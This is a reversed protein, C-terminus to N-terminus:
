LTASNLIILLHRPWHTMYMVNFGVEFGKKKVAKALVVARDFNKPNIAIRVMDALGKIPDLLKSIDEPKTSKENLMVVLKKTSLERLHNLVSVPTYGFKGLYEKGPNNRYGVELYGIPLKNMATIYEDVVHADFDWNTYYGGDRLTCDLIKYNKNITQM